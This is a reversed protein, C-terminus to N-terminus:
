IPQTLLALTREVIASQAEAPAGVRELRGIEASGAVVLRCRQERRKDFVDFADCVSDTRSLEDALVLADEVALAAGSALQPMTPHAADGVLIVRGVHWPTPLVFVEQLRFVIGSSTRLSERVTRMVAGYGQLLLVLDPLLAEPRRFVRHTSQVVFLYMERDSVLNFDV